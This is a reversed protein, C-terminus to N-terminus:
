LARQAQELLDEQPPLEDRPIRVFVITAHLGDGISLEALELGDTEGGSAEDVKVGMRSVRLLTRQLSVHAQPEGFVANIHEIYDDLTALAGRAEAYEAGTEKLEREVERIQQEFSPGDGVLPQMGDRGARLMRLRVGLLAKRMQLDQTQQGIGAVRQLVLQALRQMIRRGVGQRAQALEAAPALLRYGGFSVTTQAVDQRVEDGELRPALIQRESRRMGLLAYAQTCQPHQDFFRRLEECRGICIPVDAAAAFFARVYPDDAWAQRSLTLAQQPLTRGLDGLHTITRQVSDALKDRYGSRLRVKPEVIEVIAETTEDVLSRDVDGGKPAGFLLSVVREFLSSM